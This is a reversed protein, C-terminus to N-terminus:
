EALMLIADPPGGDRVEISVDPLAASLASHIGEAAGAHAFALLIEKPELSRAAAVVDESPAVLRTRASAAADRMAPVADIHDAGGGHALLAAIVRGPDQAVVTHVAAPVHELIRKELLGVEPHSGVLIVERGGIADVLGSLGDEDEDEVDVAVAGLEAFAGAMARGASAVILCRTSGSRAAPLGGAFTGDEFAAVTTESLIGAELGIALATETDNTHVHVNWSTDKGVVAISDGIRALRQGVGSAAAPSAELLYQVEYAYDLSGTERVRVQDPGPFVISIPALDRDSVAAAFADLVLCLGVAGADVLEYAALAPLMEPTRALALRAAASAAELLASETKGSSQAAADAITLMTGERPERMAARAALAAGRLAEHLRGPGLPERTLPQFFGRFFQSLIVGSNGRAGRLSADVVAAGIASVDEPVRSIADTVARMTAVLNTGTDGDPVPFVNARDIHERHAELAELAHLLARHLRSADLTSM